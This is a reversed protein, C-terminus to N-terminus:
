IPVMYSVIDSNRGAYCLHRNGVIKMRLTSLVGEDQLPCADYLVLSIAFKLFSDGFTEMCENNFIDEANIPTLAQVYFNM